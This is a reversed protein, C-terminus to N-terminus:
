FPSERFVYVLILVDDCNPSNDKGGNIGLLIPEGMFIKLYLYKLHEGMYSSGIIKKKNAKEHSPNEKRFKLYITMDIQYISDQAEELNFTFFFIKKEHFM